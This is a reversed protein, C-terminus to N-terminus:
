VRDRFGAEGMFVSKRSSVPRADLRQIINDAVMSGYMTGMGTQETMVNQKMSLRHYFKRKIQEALYRPGWVPTNVPVSWEESPMGGYPRTWIEISEGIIEHNEAMFHVYEKDFNYAERFKENFKQASNISKKPKLYIAKSKAIDEQSMKTQEEKEEKKATQNMQDMTLSKVQSDFEEFQSQVKDLESKVNVHVKQAM